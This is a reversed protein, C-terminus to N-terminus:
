IFIYEIILGSILFILISFISWMHDRCFFKLWSQTPDQVVHTFKYREYDRHSKAIDFIFFVVYTSLILLLFGSM